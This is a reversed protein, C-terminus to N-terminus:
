TNYSFGAYTFGCHSLRGSKALVSTTNLTLSIDRVVMKAACTGSPINKPLVHSVDKFDPANPVYAAVMDLNGVSVCQNFSVRLRFKSGPSNNKQVDLTLVRSPKKTFDSSPYFVHKPIWIVSTRPFFANCRTKTGDEREIDM